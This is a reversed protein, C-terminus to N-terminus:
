VISCCAGTGAEDSVWAEARCSPLAFLSDEEAEVSFRM